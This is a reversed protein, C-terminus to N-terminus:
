QEHAVGRMRTVSTLGEEKMFERLEKELTSFAELGKECIVSGIQVASAGAMIYEAVDIGTWIGGVGIIPISLAEYLEFVCRIGIPKIARGSLGGFRNGLVPKRLRPDLCMAKLTNIAVVASAGAEEAALGLSCIDSINPTLKALVPIGVSSVVSKIIRRVSAPSSGVESGYGRAHPCSLNLEVAMAGYQEMKKALSAFDAPRSAFISGIVNAGSGKLVEMEREFEAIGPNPLGMANLMGFEMPYVTPNQHGDKPQLGISKTVVASAGARHAALLLEGTEGLIGSALMLPHSLKMGLIEVSLDVEGSAATPM